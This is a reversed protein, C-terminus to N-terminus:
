LAKWALRSSISPQLLEALTFSVDLRVRTRELCKLTTLRDPSYEDLLSAPKGSFFHRSCIRDNAM